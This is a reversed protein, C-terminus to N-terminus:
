ESFAASSGRIQPRRRFTKKRRKIAARMTTAAAIPPPTPPPTAAALDRSPDPAAAELEVEIDEVVDGGEVSVLHSKCGSEKVRVLYKVLRADCGYCMMM